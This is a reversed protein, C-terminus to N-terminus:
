IASRSLKFGPLVTSALEGEANAEIPQYRDGVLRFCDLAADEVRYVIYEPIRNREYANKKLGLDISASSLAIEIILTPAGHLYGDPGVATTDGIGDFRRVIMDPQLENDFDLILTTNHLIEFEPAFPGRQYQELAARLKSEARSHSISVPSGMIVTGEILEAKKIEPHLAYRQHFEPQSFRDGSQLATRRAAPAAQLTSAMIM